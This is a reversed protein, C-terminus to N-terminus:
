FLIECSWVVVLSMLGSSSSPSKRRACGDWSCPWLRETEGKTKLWGMWLIQDVSGMVAKGIWQKNRKWGLYTTNMGRASNFETHVSWWIAWPAPSFLAVWFLIWRLQWQESSTKTFSSLTAHYCGFVLQNVEYGLLHGNSLKWPITNWSVEIESSSLSHASVQSPAM